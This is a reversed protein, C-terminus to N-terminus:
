MTAGSSNIRSSAPKSALQKRRKYYASTPEETKWASTSSRGSVAKISSSPSSIPGPRLHMSFRQSLSQRIWWSSQKRVFMVTRSYERVRSSASFVEPSIPNWGSPRWKSLNHLAVQLFFHGCLCLWLRTCKGKNVRRMKAYNQFKIKVTARKMSLGFM